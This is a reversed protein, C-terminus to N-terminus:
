ALLASSPICIDDPIIHQHVRVCSGACPLATPLPSLPDPRGSACPRLCTSQPFESGHYFGTLRARLIDCAHTVYRTDAGGPTTMTAGGSIGRLAELACLLPRPLPPTWGCLASLPMISAPARYGRGLQRWPGAPAPPSARVPSHVVSDLM